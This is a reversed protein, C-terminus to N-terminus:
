WPSHTPQGTIAALYAHRTVYGLQEVLCVAADVGETLSLLNGSPARELRVESWRALHVRQVSLLRPGFEAPVQEDLTRLWAERQRPSLEQQAQSRVYAWTFESVYLTDNLTQAWDLVPNPSDPRRGAIFEAFAEPGLLWGAM